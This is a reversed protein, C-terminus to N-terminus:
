HFYPVRDIYAIPRINLLSKNFLGWLHFVYINSAQCKALSLLSLLEVLPANMRQVELLVTLVMKSDNNLYRVVSKSPADASM